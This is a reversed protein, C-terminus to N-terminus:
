EAKSVAARLLRVEKETLRWWAGGEPAPYSVTALCAKAAELLTPAAAHTNCYFLAAGRGKHNQVLECGCDAVGSSEDDDGQLWIVPQRKQAM